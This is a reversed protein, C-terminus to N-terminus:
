GSRSRWGSHTARHPCHRPTVRGLMVRDRQGLCNRESSHRCDVWILWRGGYSSHRFLRGYRGRAPHVADPPRVQRFLGGLRNEHSAEIVGEATFWWGERGLPWWGYVCRHRAFGVAWRTRGAAAHQDQAACAQPLRSSDRQHHGSGSCAEAVTRGHTIQLALDAERATLGFLEHLMASDVTVDRQAPQLTIALRPARLDPFLTVPSLLPHVTARCSTRTAIAGPTDAEIRRLAFHPQINALPDEAARAAQALWNRWSALQQRVRPQLCGDNEMLPVESTNLCKAAARNRWVIRGDPACLFVPDSKTELLDLATTAVGHQQLVARYLMLGRRMHPLLRQAARLQEPSAPGDSPHRQISCHCTLDVEDLLQLSLYYRFRYSALWEFYESKWLRRETMHQADHNIHMEPHKIAYVVRPDRRIFEADYERLMSEPIGLV